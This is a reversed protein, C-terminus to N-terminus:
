TALTERDVSLLRQRTCFERMKKASNSYVKKTGTLHMLKKIKEDGFRYFVDFLRRRYRLMQMILEHSDLLCFILNLNRHTTCTSLFPISSLGKSGQGISGLTKYVVFSDLWHYIYQSLGSRARQHAEADHFYTASNAFSTSSPFLSITAKPLSSISM